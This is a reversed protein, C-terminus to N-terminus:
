YLIFWIIDFLEVNLIARIITIYDNLLTVDYRYLHFLIWLLKHLLIRNDISILQTSVTDNFFFIFITERLFDNKEASITLTYQTGRFHMMIREESIQMRPVCQSSHLLDVVVCWTRSSECLDNWRWGIKLFSEWYEQLRWM